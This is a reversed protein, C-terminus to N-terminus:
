KASGPLLFLRSQCLISVYFRKQEQSRTDVTPSIAEISLPHIGVALALLTIVICTPSIAEISLPHISVM